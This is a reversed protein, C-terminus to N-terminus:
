QCNWVEKKWMWAELDMNNIQKKGALFSDTRINSFEKCTNCKWIHLDASKSAACPTLVMQSGCGCTMNQKLVDRRFLFSRASDETATLQVIEDHLSLHASQFPM